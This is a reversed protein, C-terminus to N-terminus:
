SVSDDSDVRLMYLTGSGGTSIGSLYRKDAMRIQWVESDKVLFHNTTANSADNSCYIHADVGEPRIILISENLESTTNATTSLALTEVNDSLIPMYTAQVASEFGSSM